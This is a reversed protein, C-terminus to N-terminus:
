TEPRRAVVEAVARKHATDSPKGEYHHLIEWGDFYGLLEGPRLRNRTPEEGDETIHVIAVVIGGPKLARRAPEFLDRQLYYCICILDWANPALCNCGHELDAVETVITLGQQSANERLIRIAEPSGDVATVNWGRGALWIANRGSGSALDLATGARLNAATQVVLPTPPADLDEEARVATRYRDDWGQLDM